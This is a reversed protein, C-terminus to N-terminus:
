DLLAWLLPKTRSVIITIERATKKNRSHLTANDIIGFIIKQQPKHLRNWIVLVNVVYIYIYNTPLFYNIIILLNNDDYVLFQLLM